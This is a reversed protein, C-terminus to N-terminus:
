WAGRAIARPRCLVALTFGARRLMRLVGFRHAAVLRRHDLMGLGLWVHLRYSELVSRAVVLATV